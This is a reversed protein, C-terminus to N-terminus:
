FKFNAPAIQWIVCDVFDVIICSGDPHIIRTFNSGSVHNYTMRTGIELTERIKSVTFGRKSFQNIWKNISKLGLLKLRQCPDEPDGSFDLGENYLVSIEDIQEASLTIESSEAQLLYDDISFDLNEWTSSSASSLASSAQYGTLVLIVGAIGLTLILILLIVAKSDGTISSNM